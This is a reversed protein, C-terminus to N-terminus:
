NKGHRKIPKPTYMDLSHKAVATMARLTDARGDTIKGKTFTKEEKQCPSREKACYM